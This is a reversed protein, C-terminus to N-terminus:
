GKALLSLLVQRKDDRTGMVPRGYHLLLQDLQVVLMQDLQARSAPAPNPPLGASNVVPLWLSHNRSNHERAAVISMAQCPAAPGNPPLRANLLQLMQAQTRQLQVLARSQRALTQSQQAQTQQLQALAQSQQAQTQQLQQQGAQLQQLQQDLFAGGQLAM